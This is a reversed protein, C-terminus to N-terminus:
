HGFFTRSSDIQVTSPSDLPKEGRRKERAGGNALRLKNSEVKILMIIAAAPQERARLM